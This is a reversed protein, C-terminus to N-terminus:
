SNRVQNSSDLNWNELTALLADAINSAKHDVPLYLAQLCYTRLKWENDIFHVTYSLFPQGTESSWMDTTAAFHKVQSLDAVVREKVENYLKPIATASFYKRSPLQYQSDFCKLMRQFGTKEVTYIPLMDKCLFFTISDTLDQWKKGDRNYPKVKEMITMITPQSSSSPQHSSRSPKSSAVSIEKLNAYEMPHHNKIHSFLNSTSGGKTTSMSNCVRCIEIDKSIPKGTADAELGFYTWVPSVTNEKPIIRPGSSSSAAM